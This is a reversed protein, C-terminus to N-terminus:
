KFHACGADSIRAGFLDLHRLNTLSTIACLGADSVHRSDANLQTLTTLGSIQCLGADGVGAYGGGAQKATGDVDGCPLVGGGDQM